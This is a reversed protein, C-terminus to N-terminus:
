RAKRQLYKNAYQQPTKYGANLTVWRVRGNSHIFNPNGRAGRIIINREVLIEYLTKEGFIAKRLYALFSSDKDSIESANMGRFDREAIRMAEEFSLKTFYDKQRTTRKILGEEYFVNLPIIGEINKTLRNMLRSDTYKLEKINMGSYHKSEIVKRLEEVGMGKYPSKSTRKM